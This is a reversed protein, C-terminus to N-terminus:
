ATLTLMGLPTRQLYLGPFEAMRPLIWASLLLFGLFEVIIIKVCLLVGMYGRPTKNECNNKM